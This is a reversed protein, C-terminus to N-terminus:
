RSPWGKVKRAFRYKRELPGKNAAWWAAASASSYVAEDFQVKVLQQPEGPSERELTIVVGQLWPAVESAQFIGLMVPNTAVQCAPLWSSSGQKPNKKNQKKNKRHDLKVVVGLPAQSILHRFKRFWSALFGWIPKM